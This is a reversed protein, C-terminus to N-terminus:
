KYKFFCNPSNKIHLFKYDHLLMATILCGNPVYSGISAEVQHKLGYSTHNKNYRSSKQFLNPIVRHVKEITEYDQTSFDSNEQIYVTLGERSLHLGKMDKLESIKKMIAEHLSM